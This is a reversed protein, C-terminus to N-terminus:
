TLHWFLAKVPIEKLPKLSVLLTSVNVPCNHDLVLNNKSHISHKETLPIYFNFYSSHLPKKIM